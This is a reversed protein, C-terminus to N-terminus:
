KALAFVSLVMILNEKIQSDINAKFKLSTYDSIVDKLGLGARTINKGTLM